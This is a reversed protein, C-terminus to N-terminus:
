HGGETWWLPYKESIGPPLEVDPVSAVAYEGTGTESGRSLVAASANRAATLQAAHFPDRPLKTQLPQSPSLAAMAVVEVPVDEEELEDDTEAEQLELEREVEPATGARLLQACREGRDTQNASPVPVPDLRPRPAFPSNKKPPRVNANVNHRRTEEFKWLLQDIKSKGGRPPGAQWAPIGASRRV